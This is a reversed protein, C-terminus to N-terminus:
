ESTRQPEIKSVSTGTVTRTPFVGTMGLHTISVYVGVFDPQVTPTLSDNRGTPPWKEDWLGPPTSPSAGFHTDDLHQIKSATYVNCLGVEGATGAALDAKCIAPVPSNPGAAKYIIVGNLRRGSGTLARNAIGLANRDALADSAWTAAERASERAANRASNVNFFLSGGEIMGFVLVLFLPVILAAEVVSAGQESRYRRNSRRTPQDLTLLM